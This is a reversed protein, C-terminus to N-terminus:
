KTYSAIDGAKLSTKISSPAVQAIAFTDTVESIVSEAITEGVRTILFKDGVVIGDETGLDLVVFANKTGVTAVRAAATRESRVPGAPVAPATSASTDIAAGNTQIGALRSELSAITQKYREVEEPNGVQAALRTQVLERRLEDLKTSLEQENKEKETLTTKLSAVERAVQVNRAEAATLKSKTDGLEADTSALRSKTTELSETTQTLNTQLGAARDKEQSLETQLQTKTEGIQWWFFGSAASGLLALICLVLTLAKM